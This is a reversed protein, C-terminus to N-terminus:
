CSDTWGADRDHEDRVEKVLKCIKHLGSFDGGIRPRKSTGLIVPRGTWGTIRAGSSASICRPDSRSATGGSRSPAGAPAVADTSDVQDGLLCFALKRRRGKRAISM